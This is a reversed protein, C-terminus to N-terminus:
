GSRREGKIKKTKEPERKNNNTKIRKENDLRILRSSEKRGSLMDEVARREHDLRSGTEQGREKPKTEQGRQVM